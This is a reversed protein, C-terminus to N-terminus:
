FFLVTHHEKTNFCKILKSCYVAIFLVFVVVLALAVKTIKSKARRSQPEEPKESVTNLYVHEAANTENYIVTTM